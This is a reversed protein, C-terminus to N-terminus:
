GKPRYSDYGYYQYNGKSDDRPAFDNLITGLVPVGDEQFRRCVRVAGEQYTVGARVILVVGDSHRGWLRADPFLLAPGTDLLVFDFNRQLIVTLEQVRGSFFLVAPNTAEALGHTMVQLNPVQTSNVFNELVINSLPGTRTLLDRLGERDSLGFLTHLRGKRLDADVLLVRKGISAMAIALNASLTTKGEGPGVSTVVYLPNHDEPKVRMISTLTQRFSEALMSSKNQWTAFELQQPGGNEAVIGLARLAPPKLMKKNPRIAASPIVGLEPVGLVARTYGPANFLQQVKKLRATARLWLFGYALGAGMLAGLPIDLLPIPSSPKTSAVAPDVVRINSTPVLAILAAQNAQQLLSSYLQQAMDVDRKLTAYQSAKDEQAGVTHTQTSYAASLLKERRLAEQYDNDLRKLVGTEEKDLTQQLETIQAQIRQVKYHEPTLTATLQAMDRRLSVINAKLNQLTADNLVDPLSDIPANRALEWRAQKAIRDAQIGAVDAQLQRLKSDALTSQQPFFDMGSKQVFERLKEGADQVRSKAEELQSDMWQSTRQTASSRNALNQSIHEAALTNVFNAAVDPSPSECKLEILRTVGVERASVTRMAKAVAERMQELPEQQTYPIRPRLKTFFTSPSSSVPTMELSIRELVRNLISRSTLIKTQTQINSASATTTDTGAQPDVQSMNMFSQNVGVLEVTTSAEYLPTKFIVFATGAVAGVLLFGTLLFNHSWALRWHSIKPPEMAPMGWSGQAPNLLHGSANPDPLEGATGGWEPEHHHNM